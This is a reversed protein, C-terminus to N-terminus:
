DIGVTSTSEAICSSLTPLDMARCKAFAAITLADLQNRCLRTEGNQRAARRTRPRAQDILYQDFTKTTQDYHDTLYEQLSAAQEAESKASPQCAQYLKFLEPIVTCLISIITFPDGVYSPVNMAISEAQARVISM